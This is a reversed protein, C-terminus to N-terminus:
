ADDDEVLEQAERAPYKELWTRAQTTLCMQAHTSGVSLCFPCEGPKFFTLLKLLARAEAMQQEDQLLLALSSDLADQINLERLNAQDLWEECQDEAQALQQYRLMQQEEAEIYRPLLFEATAPFRDATQCLICARTVHEQTAETIKWVHQCDETM